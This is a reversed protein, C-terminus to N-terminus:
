YIAVFGEKEVIKQGVPGLVFSIFTLEAVPMPGNTIMYLNRALPYAGSKVNAASCVVYPATSNKAVDIAKIHSNLFGIGIYGIGYQDGSITTNMQPSGAVEVIGSVYSFTSSDSKMVLDEFTGRTGSASERGYVHIVHNPGGFYNWNTISGNYIMKLEKITMQSVTLTPHVIIAIGDKAIATVNLNPFATRESTKVERSSMGIDSIGNGVDTIGQTSGGASVQVDYIPYLDMFVDAATTAIPFVTTSGSIKLTTVQPGGGQNGGSFALYGSGLGAFFMGVAVVVAIIAIKKGANESM